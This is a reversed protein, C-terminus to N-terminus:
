RCRKEQCLVHLPHHLTTPPLPPPNKSTRCSRCHLYQRAFQGDQFLLANWAYVHYFDSLCLLWYFIETNANTQLYITNTNPLLKAIKKCWIWKLTQTNPIRRHTFAIYLVTPWSPSAHWQWQTISVDLAPSKNKLWSMGEISYIPCWFIASLLVGFRSIDAGVYWQPTPNSKHMRTPQSGRHAIHTLYKAHLPIQTNFRIACRTTEKLMSEVAVRVCLQQYLYM